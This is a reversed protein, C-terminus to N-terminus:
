QRLQVAKGDMEDATQMARSIMTMARSTRILYSFEQGMDVNAGEYCSQRVRYGDGALQMNGSSASPTFYNRGVSLLGKPNNCNFVGIVAIDQNDVNVVGDLGVSFNTSGPVIRNGNIDLVFHGKGNVLQGLEDIRFSGDRTFYVQGGEGQVAFFGDGELALDTNNNSELIPGGGMYRVTGGVSTGHGMRLNDEAQPQVPRLLTQYLMDEFDMRVAKYGITNLNSLNSGITDFRKQMAQLGNAATYTSRMM